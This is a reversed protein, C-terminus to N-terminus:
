EEAARRREMEDRLRAEEIERELDALQQETSRADRSPAHAAPPQSTRRQRATAPRSSQDYDRGLTFWLVTGLLPVLVVLLIWVFKPLHKVQWEERTIIDILAVVLVGLLVISLVPM